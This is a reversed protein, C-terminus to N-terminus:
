RASTVIVTLSASKGRFTATVLTRGPALAALDGTQSITAISPDTSEWVASSTVNEGGNDYHATALVKATSGAPIAGNEDFQGTMGIGVSNLTGLNVSAPYTAPSSCAVSLLPILLATTLTAKVLVASRASFWLARSRM